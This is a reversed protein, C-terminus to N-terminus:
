QGQARAVAIAVLKRCHKMRYTLVTSLLYEPSPSKDEVCIKQAQVLVSFAGELFGACYGGLVEGVKLM